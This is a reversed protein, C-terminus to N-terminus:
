EHSVRSMSDINQFNLNLIPSELALLIFMRPSFLFKFLKMLKSSNSFHTLKRNLSRRNKILAYFPLLVQSILLMWGYESFFNLVLSESASLFIGLFYYAIGLSIYVIIKVFIKKIPLFLKFSWRLFFVTWYIYPILSLLIILLSDSNQTYAFIQAVLFFFKGFDTWLYQGLFSCIEKIRAM